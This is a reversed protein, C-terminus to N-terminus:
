YSRYEFDDFDASMAANSAPAALGLNIDLISASAFTVSQSSLAVDDVYATVKSPAGSVFDIRLVHWVDLAYPALPISSSTAATSITLVLEGNSTAIAAGGLAEFQIQLLPVTVTTDIAHLRAAARVSTTTHTVATDQYYLTVYSLGAESPTTTFLASRPPSKSNVTDFVVDADGDVFTSTWGTAVTSQTDFDDCFVNGSPPDACTFVDGADSTEPVNVDPVAVDLQPTVDVNADGVGADDNAVFVDNSCAFLFLFCM